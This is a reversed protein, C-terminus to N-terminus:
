NNESLSVTTLGGYVYMIEQSSQRDVRNLISHNNASSSLIAKHGTRLDSLWEDLQAKNDKTSKNNDEDKELANLQDIVFVVDQQAEFFLNIDEQTKLTMIDQQKSQDGAWAFLMAAILYRVPSHIFERCDPIYVVKVGRAALYCVLAALLHSKGYGRSGYVVLASCTTDRCIHEFRDRLEAFKERGIYFWNMEDDKNYVKFRSPL